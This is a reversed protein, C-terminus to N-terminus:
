KYAVSINSPKYAQASINEVINEKVAKLVNSVHVSENTYSRSVFGPGESRFDLYGASPWRPM